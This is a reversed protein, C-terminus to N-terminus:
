IGLDFKMQPNKIKILEKPYDELHVNEPMINDWSVNEDITFTPKCDISERRLLEKASEINNLQHEEYIEVRNDFFDKMKELM